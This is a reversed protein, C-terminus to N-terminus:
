AALEAGLDTHGPQELQEIAVSMRVVHHVGVCVM